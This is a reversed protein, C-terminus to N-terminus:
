RISERKRDIGAVARRAAIKVWGREDDVFRELADRAEPPRLKALAKVAHGNVDPDALLEILAQVAEPRRLRGLGMVIMERARGYDRNRALRLMDELMSDDAVADIANGIVWPLGSWDGETTEFAQILTPGAIGRAARDTVARILMEKVTPDEVRPIWSVLAPIAPRYSM